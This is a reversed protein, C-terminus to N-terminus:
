IEVGSCLLNMMLVRDDRRVVVAVLSGKFQDAVKKNNNDAQVRKIAIVRVVIAMVPNGAIRLAVSSSM